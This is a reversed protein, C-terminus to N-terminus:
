SDKEDNEHFYEKAIEFLIASGAGIGLLGLAMARLSHLYPWSKLALISLALIASGSLLRKQNPSFM